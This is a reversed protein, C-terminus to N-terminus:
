TELFRRLRYRTLIAVANPLKRESPIDLMGLIVMVRTHPVLAFLIRLDIPNLVGGRDRSVYFTEQPDAGVIQTLELGPCELPNAQQAMRLFNALVHRLQDENLLKRAETM